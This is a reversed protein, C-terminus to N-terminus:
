RDRQATRCLLLGYFSPPCSTCLIATLAGKPGGGLVQGSDNIDVPSFSSYSGLDIMQGIDSRLAAYCDDSFYQAYGVVEGSDNIASPAFDGLDTMQGGSYLFGHMDGSGTEADGVIQGSNNIDVAESWGGGLTGLDIMQGGSSRLAAHWDGSSSIVRGVVQGSDNMHWPYFSSSDGLDIMQGGSYLLSHWDGSSTLGDGLIQGSNNIATGYFDPLAIPLPASVSLLRRAELPEILLRRSRSDCGRQGGLCRRGCRLASRRSM